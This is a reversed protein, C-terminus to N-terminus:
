LRPATYFRATRGGAGNNVDLTARVAITLDGSGIEFEDGATVANADITGSWLFTGGTSASWLSFHTYHESTNVEETSWFIDADNSIRGGSTPALNIQKRTSNGAVNNTGAAGPDGTHLQIWTGDLGELFANANSAAPGVAM